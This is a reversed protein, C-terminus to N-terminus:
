PLWSILDRMAPQGAIGELIQYRQHSRREQLDRMLDIIPLIPDSEM